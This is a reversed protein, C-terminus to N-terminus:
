YCQENKNYKNKFKSAEWSTCPCANEHSVVTQDGRSRSVCCSQMGRLILCTWTVQKPWHFTLQPCPQCKSLFANLLWHKATWDTVTSECVSKAPTQHICDPSRPDVSFKLVPSPPRIITPKPWDHFSNRIHLSVSFKPNNTEVVFSLLDQSHYQKQVKLFPYGNEM